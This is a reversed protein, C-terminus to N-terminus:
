RALIENFHDVTFQDLKNRLEERSFLDLVMSGGLENLHKLLPIMTDGKIEVGQEKLQLATDFLAFRISPNAMFNSSFTNVLKHSFATRFLELSAYPNDERSSDYTLRGIWWLKSLSNIYISRKTGNKDNYFYRNLILNSNWKSRSNDEMSKKIHSQMFDGLVGHSLGAWLREDTADSDSLNKMSSYLIKANDVEAAEPDLTFAEFEKKFPILPDHPLINQIWEKDDNKYHELHSEVNNKLFTLNEERMFHVIM